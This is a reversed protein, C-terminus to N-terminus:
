WVKMTGIDVRRNNEGYQIELGTKQKNYLGILKLHIIEKCDVSQCTQIEPKIRNIVEFCCRDPLLIEPQAKKFCTLNFFASGKPIEILLLVGLAAFDCAVEQSISCATFRSFGIIDGVKSTDCLTKMYNVGRYSYIDHNIKPSQLITERMAMYAEEITYDGLFSNPVMPLRSTADDIPEGNLYSVNSNFASYNGVVWKRFLQKLRPSFEDYYDRHLNASVSYYDIDRVKELGYDTYHEENLDVPVPWGTEYLERVKAMKTQEDYKDYERVFEFWQTSIRKGDIWYEMRGDIYIVAPGQENHLENGKFWRRNRNPLIISQKEEGKFFSAFIDKAFSNRSVRGKLLKGDKFEYIVNPSYFIGTAKTGASNVFLGMSKMKVFLSPLAFEKGEVQVKVKKEKPLSDKTPTIYGIANQVMVSTENDLFEIESLVGDTISFLIFPFAPDYFRSSEFKDVSNITFLREGNEFNRM